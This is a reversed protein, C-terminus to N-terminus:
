KRDLGISNIVNGSNGDVVIVMKNGKHEYRAFWVPVHLLEPEAADLDTKLSQVMHHQRHVKDAQVQAVDTKAKYTAAEEGVDGNLVKVGKPLKTADFLQRESLSFSYDRPQYDTLAKMAVVPYEYNENLTYAKKYGGGMGGGMMSGLMAGEFLGTGMGMGRERGGGFSGGMLGFLAATTAVTGVQAYPDAATYTTRASVSVIWYPVVSLTMEECQSEEMLHRHLLGSDMKGKIIALVSDQTTYKVPLMTHKQIQSWGQDGLSVTSGCYECTIVMEGFQPKIPAGCGPCKLETVQAGALIPRSNQTNNQQSPAPANVQGQTQESGGVQQKAGCKYCFQADDPLQAGCKICYM